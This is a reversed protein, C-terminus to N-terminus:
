QLLYDNWRNMAQSLYTYHGEHHADSAIYTYLGEKLMRVAPRREKGLRGGRVFDASAQLKCGMHVLERALGIDRQIAVYREPHAIIVDYGLGQLEFITREYDGFRSPSAGVSLELLFENSGDFHLREAWEMGLEMLMRYNVEFGMQLPFNPDISHVHTEFARFARWMPLYEFYPQRCHPTCTISTVGARRAAEFMAISEDMSQSGDDVGPLIHSHMDRM